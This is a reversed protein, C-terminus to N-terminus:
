RGGVWVPRVSVTGGGATVRARVQVDKITNFTGFPISDGPLEVVTPAGASGGAPIVAPLGIRTAFFPDWFELEGTTAGDSTFVDWRGWIEINMTRTTMVWLPEFAGAGTTEYDLEPTKARRLAALLVPRNLGVGGWWVDGVIVNGGRDYMELVQQTGEFPAASRLALEGTERRITVGMDGAPQRGVELVGGGWTTTGEPVSTYGARPARELNALRREVDALRRSYTDPRPTRGGAADTV